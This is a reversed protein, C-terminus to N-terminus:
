RVKRLRNNILASGFLQINLLLTKRMILFTMFMTVQVLPHMLDVSCIMMYM